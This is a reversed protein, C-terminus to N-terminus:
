EEDATIGTDACLGRKASAVFEILVRATPSNFEKAADALASKLKLKRRFLLHYLRKLELRQEITFGARRLGM